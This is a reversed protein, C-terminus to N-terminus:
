PTATFPSTAVRATRPTTPRVAAHPEGDSTEGSGTSIGLGKAIEAAGFGLAEAVFGAAFRDLAGVGDRTEGEDLADAQM